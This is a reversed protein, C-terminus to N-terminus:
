HMTSVTLIDNLTQHRLTYTTDNSYVSYDIACGLTGYWKTAFVQINRTHGTTARQKYKQLKANLAHAHSCDYARSLEFLFMAFWDLHKLLLMCSNIADSAHIAYMAQVCRAQIGV